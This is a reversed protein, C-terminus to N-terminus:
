YPADMAILKVHGFHFFTNSADIPNGRFGLSISVLDSMGAGQRMIETIDVYGKMWNGTSSQFVALDSRIGNSFVIYTTMIGNTRYAFELFFRANYPRMPELRETAIDFYSLSDTLLIELVPRGDSDHILKLPAGDLTDQNSFMTSQMFTELIPFSVEKRYKLTLTPLNVEEEPQIHLDMVIPEVFPYQATTVVNSPVRVCPILRLHNSNSFDPILPIRCNQKTANGALYWFGLEQGNLSVHVDRFMQHKIVSLELSDYDTEHISNFDSVDIRDEFDKPSVVLYAPADIPPTCAYFLFILIPFFLVYYNKM